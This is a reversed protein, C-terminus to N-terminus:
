MALLKNLKKQSKTIDEIDKTIQLIKLAKEEDDTNEEATPAAEPEAEEEPEPKVKEMMADALRRIEALIERQVEILSGTLALQSKQLTISPQGQDFEDKVGSESTDLPLSVEKEVPDNGDTGVFQAINGALIADKIMEPSASCKGDTECMSIAQAIAQDRELGEEMLKPIKGTVCAQFDEAKQKQEEDEEEDEDDDEKDDDDMAKPEEEDEDEDEVEESDEKPKSVEVDGANLGQLSELDLELTDAATTLFSEPVPTVNGAMINDLEDRTMDSGDLMNDLVEDRDAGQKQAQYIANHIAAAVWAGKQNLVQERMQQYNEINDYNFDKSELAQKTYYKKGSKEGGVVTFLSGQNMPIGVISTELLEARKIVNTGDSDKEASGHDNFGVSFAKLIGENILDRVYPVKGEKSNSLRVRIKLGKDTPEIAIAKGVIHKHEHNFLIIPIKKFEDLEWAEKPIIDGIRDKILANALGEIELSGSKKDDNKVVFTGKLIM